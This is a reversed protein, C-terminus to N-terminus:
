HRAAGRSWRQGRHSHANLRRGQFILVRGEGHRVEGIISQALAGRQPPDGVLRIVQETQRVAADLSQIVLKAGSQAHETGQPPPRQEGIFHPQALSNFGTQHELLQQRSAHNAPEQHEGDWRQHVLPFLLQALLETQGRGGGIVGVRPAVGAAEPALRRTHDGAEMGQLLRGLQFNGPLYVPVHQDHVLRVIQAVALRLGPLGDARQRTMEQQQERRRRNLIGELFEVVQDRQKLGTLQGRWFLEAGPEHVGLARPLRALGFLQAAEQALHHNSVRAGVGAQLQRRAPGLRYQELRVLRFPGEPM